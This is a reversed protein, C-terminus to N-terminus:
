KEVVKLSTLDELAYQFRRVLAVLGLTRLFMLGRLFSSPVRSNVSEPFAFRMFEYKAVTPESSDLM